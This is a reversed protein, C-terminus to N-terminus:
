VKFLKITRTHYGSAGDPIPDAVEATQLIGKGDTARVQLNLKAPRDVTMPRHWLVWSFPSLAPKVEAPTWTGGGDTSIEVRQIGRDGAFAIGAIEIGGIPASGDPIDIRSMTKYHAVDDWGRVQWFGKFDYNVAEISTIWKVNKMGYIGPVILRLPFGHTPTLPAGNMEYALITGPNMARDLPISDDYGDAAHLIIKVAGPRLGAKELLLGLRVGKWKANGILNGGVPNSICELTAFQEVAPLTRIESAAWHTPQGVLGRMELSWKDIDVHPDIVNKSVQYFDSTPTVETALGSLNPFIGSGSSLRGAGARRIQNSFNGLLTYLFSGVGILGLAGLLTRRSNMFGAPVSSSSRLQRYVLGLSIGYCLFMGLLVLSTLLGQDSIGTFLSPAFGPIAITLSAFWFLTSFLFLRLSVPSETSTKFTRLVWAGVVTGAGVFTLVCAVFGLKKAYIGLLQIGFEVFSIPLLGFLRDALLEPILPLRLALRGLFMLAVLIITAAFAAALRASPRDQREEEAGRLKLTEMTLIPVYLYHKKLLFM